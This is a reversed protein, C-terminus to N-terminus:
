PLPVPSYQSFRSEQSLAVYQRSGAVGANIANTEFRRADGYLGFLGALGVNDDLLPTEIVVWAGAAADGLREFDAASGTGADLLPASFANANASYPKAVADLDFEVDGAVSVAVLNEDWTAPMTFDETVVSVEAERLKAVAWAVAERNADSGTVRGGISDTLEQLDDM